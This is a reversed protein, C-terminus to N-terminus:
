SSAINKELQKRRYELQEPHSNQLWANFHLKTINWGWQLYKDEKIALLHLGLRDIKNLIRDREDQPKDLIFSIMKDVVRITNEVEKEAENEIESTICDSVDIRYLKDNLETVNVLGEFQDIFDRESIVKKQNGNISAFSKQMVDIVIEYRLCYSYSFLLGAVLASRNRGETCCVYVKRSNAIWSASQKTMAIMETNKRKQNKNIGFSNVIIGNKEAKEYALTNNKSFSQREKKTSCDLILHIGITILEDVIKSDLVPGFYILDTLTCVKM